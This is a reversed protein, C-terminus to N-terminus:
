FFGGQSPCIPLAIFPLSLLEESTWAPDAVERSPDPCLCWGAECWSLCELDRQSSSYGLLAALVSGFLWLILKSFFIRPYQQSTTFSQMLLREGLGQATGTHACCSRGADGGMGSCAPSQSAAGSLQETSGLFCLLAGPALSVILDSLHDSGSSFGSTDSDSPSSSRSDLLSRSNRLSPTSFKEPLDSGIPDLPLFGLPPKGLVNGLPNSLM